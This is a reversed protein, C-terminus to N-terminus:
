RKKLLSYIVYSLAGVYVLLVITRTAAGSKLVGEEFYKDPDEWTGNVKIGFHLHPGLSNGAGKENPIGGTEGIVEGKIVSEGKEVNIARMHCYATTIKGAGFPNSHELVITGGCSNDFFGATLVKGSRPARTITGSPVSIDVGNHMRGWRPGFPSSIRWSNVPSTLKM